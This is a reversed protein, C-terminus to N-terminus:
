FLAIYMCTTCVHMIYMLDDVKTPRRGEKQEFATEWSKLRRKLSILQKQIAPVATILISAFHIMIRRGAQFLNDM